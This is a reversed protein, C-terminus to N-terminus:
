MTEIKNPKDKNSVSGISLNSNLKTTECIYSHVADIGVESYNGSHFNYQLRDILQSLEVNPEVSRIEKPNAGKGVLKHYLETGHYPRFQFVSTRYATGYQSARIALDKALSYTMKMDEETESPFGYIFYAKIGIGAKLVLDLNKKILDVNSTKSIKKLIRPSGSEIGIFLEKCGSKKLMVIDEYSAKAFTMVHAMSRWQFEFPSFTKTAYLIHKRQKLFLDDLVRISNVDPFMNRILRLENQVSEISRERIGYEKNMTRAAACFACNYICGRSTVINIENFGLPHQVPENTFFSRDLELDNIDKVYFISSSDVKFVRRNGIEVHPKLSTDKQLIALTIKEGDGTVIDINNETDWELIQHFLEKTSLGGIIVHTQFDISEILEKVLDYNTTFINVGVYEPKHSKLIEILSELPIRNAIADVLSVSFKNNRLITAIYGLGIPPLSDEDYLNNEERFLPSNVLTIHPRKKIL